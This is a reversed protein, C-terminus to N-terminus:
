RVYNITNYIFDVLYRKENEIIYGDEETLSIHLEYANNFKNYMVEYMDNDSVLKHNWCNVVKDEGGWSNASEHLYELFKTNMDNIDYNESKVIDSLTYEKGTNINYHYSYYFRNQFDINPGYSWKISIDLIEENNYKSISTEYSSIVVSNNMNTLKNYLQDIKKNISEIGEASGVLKPLKIEFNGDIKNIEELKYSTDVVKKEEVTTTDNKNTDEITTQTTTNTTNNDKTIFKDYVIFGGLVIVLITLIIVLINNKKNEM